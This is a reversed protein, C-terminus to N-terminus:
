FGQNPNCLSMIAQDMNVDLDFVGNQGFVGFMSGDIDRDTEMFSPRVTGAIGGEPMASFGEPSLKPGSGDDNIISEFNFDSLAWDPVVPAQSPDMMWIDPAEDLKSTLGPMTTADNKPALPDVLPIGPERIQSLDQSESPPTLQQMDDTRDQDPGRLQDRPQLGNTPTSDGFVRKVLATLRSVWRMMKGSVWISHCYMNLSRTAELTIGRYRRKLSPERTALGIMVMTASTLYHSFPFCYKLGHDQIGEHASLMNAALSACVTVSELEDDEARGFPKASPSFPRRMLLRLFNTCQLLDADNKPDRHLGSVTFLLMTQKVQWRLRTKFQGDPPLQPNYSLDPPLNELLNCLVTDAYEIMASSTHNSTKVGYLIEWAKGVVRSFRVMAILYPIPTIPGSSLEAAVEQHLQGTSEQRLQYRSLWEDGLEMPLATDINSDQILYPRGSEIALRRDLVYMAWWIRTYMQCEFVPLNELTRQRHLGIIHANSVSLALLRAARQTADLRFLYLVRILLIQLTLLSKSATNSMEATDQMLSIGVSYLTWGASHVGNADTMRSCVSCRGLALCFCVLAVSMRKKEREASSSLPWLASYEWLENFTEWVTPPHLIPYLVHIEELFIQMYRRWENEEAVVGHQELITELWARPKRSSKGGSSATRRLSPEPPFDPLPGVSPGSVHDMEEDEDKFAPSMSIEGAFTQGDPELISQLETATPTPHDEVPAAHGHPRPHNQTTCTISDQSTPEIMSLRREVAALRAILESNTCARSIYKGRKMKKVPRETGDPSSAGADKKEGARKDGQSGATEAVSPRRQEAKDGATACVVEDHEPSEHRTDPAM